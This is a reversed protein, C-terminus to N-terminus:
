IYLRWFGLIETMHPTVKSTSMPLAFLTTTVAAGWAQITGFDLRYELGGQGQIVTGAFEITDVKAGYSYYACRILLSFNQSSLSTLTLGDRSETSRHAGGLIHYALGGEVGQRLIQRHILDLLMEGGMMSTLRPSLDKNLAMGMPVGGIKYTKSNSSASKNGAGEEVKEVKLTGVSMGSKLTIDLDLDPLKPREFALAKISLFQACFAIILWPGYFSSFLKSKGAIIQKSNM